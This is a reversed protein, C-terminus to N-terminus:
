PTITYLDGFLLISLEEIIARDFPSWDLQLPLAVLKQLAALQVETLCATLTCSAAQCPIDPRKVEVLKYPNWLLRINESQNGSYGNQKHPM